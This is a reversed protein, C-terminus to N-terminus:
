VTRRPPVRRARQRRVEFQNADVEIGYDRRRPKMAV